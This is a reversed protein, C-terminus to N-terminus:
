VAIAAATFAARQSLIEIADDIYAVFDAADRFYNRFANRVDKRNGRVLVIDKGIGTNDAELDFLAWLAQDADRYTRIELPEGESFILILNHNRGAVKADGPDLARLMEMFNLAADFDAFSSVLEADSVEPLPGPRNEFVRSIMESALVMITEYRKDGEKFKPNSSTVLGVVEVCTAWAHQFVTRYQLEIQLGKLAAGHHSRVDYKYIDHIGRYGDAKPSAIYDYKEPDNRLEHKFKARHFEDRFDYLDEITGFILRCGAVDDMRHLRMEPFRRLKGFITSRRKHRQAVAIDRGRTRTRLIAQFSNLVHRHAARWREIVQYDEISPSGNRVADGAKSVRERSGGPYKEIDSM